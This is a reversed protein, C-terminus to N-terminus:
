KTTNNRSFSYINTFIECFMKCNKEFFLRVLKSSHFGVSEFVCGFNEIQQLHKCHKCKICGSFCVMYKTNNNRSFGHISIFIECLM